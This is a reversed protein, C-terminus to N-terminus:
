TITPARKLRSWRAETGEGLSVLVAYMAADFLDDERRYAEKDFGRFGTVQRVLGGRPKKDRRLCDLCTLGARDGFEKTPRDAGVVGM